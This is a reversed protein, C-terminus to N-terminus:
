RKMYKRGQSAAPTNQRKGEGRQRREDVRTARDDKQAASKAM